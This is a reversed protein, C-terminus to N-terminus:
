DGKEDLLNAALILEISDAILRYESLLQNLREIGTGEIHYYKRVRRKGIQVSHSTIHKKDELKYLIPYLSGEPVVFSGASLDKLLLSIEYGYLDKQSLLSLVLMEVTGLKFNNREQVM